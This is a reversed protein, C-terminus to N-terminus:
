RATRTANDKLLIVANRYEGGLKGRMARAEERSRFEGAMVRWVPVAEDGRALVGESRFASGLEKKMRRVAREANAESTFAGVQLTYMAESLKVPAHLLEIRVKSVGAQFLGIRRAAERSLDLVRGDVYPGRDNVRVEVDQGTALHTVRLLSQLPLTPHAATLQDMDYVEGSATRRGHFPKGYWSAIGEERYTSRITSTNRKSQTGQRKSCSTQMMMAIFIILLSATFRSILSM